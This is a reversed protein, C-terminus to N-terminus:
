QSQEEGTVKQLPLDENNEGNANYREPDAKIDTRGGWFVCAGCRECVSVCASACARVWVRM